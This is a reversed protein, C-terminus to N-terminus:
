IVPDRDPEIGITLNRQFHIVKGSKAILSQPLYGKATQTYSFRLINQPFHKKQLKLGAWGMTKRANIEVVPHLLIEEPNEPMIYLMADIGVNGFFGLNAMNSLIPKVIQIHQHLFYEHSGFLTKEDGVLNYRYQGRSDNQCLTSGIYSIQKEKEIKWQTSFDLVRAVWPEAIVPLEQKWERQLFAKIKEWPFCPDDIILHGKGSVGYCTKIVKKGEFSGLWQKAQGENHLMEAGLLKPSSEFSFRKSNVHRVVDWQPMLYILNHRDAFEAILQSAGWAEIEKFNAIAPDLLTCMRPPPIDLAQLTTIYEPPPLATVLVGESAEAYLMPLFQLQVFIPHQFFAESLSCNPQKELEWEFFTNAIHIRRETLNQSSQGAAVKGFRAKEDGKEVRSHHEERLEIQGRRARDFNM